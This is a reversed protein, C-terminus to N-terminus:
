RRSKWVATRPMRFLGFEELLEEAKGTSWLSKACGHKRWLWRQLKGCSQRDVQGMVECSNGYHFYGAWGKLKRKLETIVEEVTRWLTSRNLKLIAGDSTRKAVVRLPKRHPISDFYGSLDADIVEMRGELLGEKIADLNNDPRFAQRSGGPWTGIGRQKRERQGM